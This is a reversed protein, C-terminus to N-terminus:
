QCGGGCAMPQHAHLRPLGMLAGERAIPAPVRRGTTASSNSAESSATAPRRSAGARLRSGTSADADGRKVGRGSRRVQCVCGVRPGSRRCTQCHLPWRGWALYGWRGPEGRSSVSAEWAQRTWGSLPGRQSAMAVVTALAGGTCRGPELGQKCLQEPQLLTLQHAPLGPRNTAPPVVCQPQLFKAFPQRM